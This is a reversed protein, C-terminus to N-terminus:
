LAHGRAQCPHRIGGFAAKVIDNGYGTGDEQGWLGAADEALITYTQPFITLAVAMLAAM